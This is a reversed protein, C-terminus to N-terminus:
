YVNLGKRQSLEEAVSYKNWNIFISKFRGIFKRISDVDLINGLSKYMDHAIGYEKPICFMELVSLLSETDAGHSEIFINYQRILWPRVYEIIESYRKKGQTFHILQFVTFFNFQRYAQTRDLFAKVTGQSIKNRKYMQHQLELVNLIEMLGYGEGLTKHRLIKITEDTIKEDIESILYSRFKQSKINGKFIYKGRVFRQLIDLIRVVSISTSMRLDSNLIFFLSEILHICFKGFEREYDDRIKAGKETIYGKKIGESYERFLENFDALLHLLHKEMIAAVFSMVDKYRSHSEITSNDSSTYNDDINFNHTNSAFATEAVLVRFESIFKKFYHETPAEYKGQQVNLFGSFTSLRNEFTNEILVHLRSKVLSLGDLFPREAYVAMKERKLELGVEKLINAYTNMILKLSEINNAAIFSDDVYRCFVYDKPCKMDFNRKLISEVRRDLLQLFIEAFLRSVEPGIIIGKEESDDTNENPLGVRIEKHLRIFDYIFDNTTSDDDSYIGNDYVLQSLREPFISDFCKKIDVKLLCEFNKEINLFKYGDYFKSINNIEEYHFYTKASESTKTEEAEDDIVKDFRNNWKLQSSIRTPYRISFKSNACFAIILKSYRDYFEMTKLQHFPHMVTLMRGKQLGDKSIYYNYNRKEKSGGSLFKLFEKIGEDETHRYAILSNGKVGVQYHKMLRAFFRNSYFLPREYPLVETQLVRYKSKSLKLNM